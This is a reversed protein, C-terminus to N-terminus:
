VDGNRDKGWNGTALATRLGNTIIDPKISKQFLIKDHGNDIDKKLIKTMVDTFNRFLQRFCNGLLSGAMDLRKKGYYDRDDENILGLSAKVLKNAMYGLFFSKKYMGDPLTSVHPLFETELLLKAYVIRKDKTYAQAAGRKAIFDLADEQSDIMRALELSPRLAEKMETNNPCDFCVRNLIHKDSLCNLARFLIALPIQEKILPISCYISQDDKLSLQKVTAGAKREKSKIQMTFLQAPKNSNEAQSRIESVWSYKSPPKKKFVNVMNNAMREQAVIVKESGNIIFYGGQDYRCDKGNKVREHENLNKLQCFDSRLM